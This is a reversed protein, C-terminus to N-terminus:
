GRRRLGPILCPVKRRYEEYEGPFLQTLLREELHIKVLLIAVTAILVALWSGLGALLTSGTLMALMGTYIPHRTIAYPGDTRLVHAEKAVVSGSWMTGLAARAWLTFATGALLLAVGFATLWPRHVVVRQWDREPTLRLALWVVVVATLWLLTRGSRRQVPPAHRANYLAGAIWVVGWLLWCAAILASVASHGLVMPLHDEQPQTEHHPSSSWPLLPHRAPCAAGDPPAFVLGAILAAAEEQM